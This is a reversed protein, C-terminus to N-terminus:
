IDTRESHYYIRINSRKINQTQKKSEFQNSQYSIRLYVYIFSMLTSQTSSSISNNFGCMRKKSFFPYATVEQWLPISATSSTSFSFKSITKKSSFIGPSVPRSVRESILSFRLVRGT